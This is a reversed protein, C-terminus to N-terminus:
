RLQQFNQGDWPIPSELCETIEVREVRSFAPGARLREFFSEVVGQPGVVFVEVSTDPLNRVWGEVGLSLACKKTWARFGVGQVLGYIKVLARTQM